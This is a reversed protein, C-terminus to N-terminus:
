SLFELAMEARKKISIIEKPTVIDRQGVYEALEWLSIGLLRATQELSLGHEYIKSAKNIASKRLVEKIYPKLNSISEFTKRAQEMYDAYEEPNNRNLASIAEDFNSNLAKVFKEWNKIKENDRREILKSLAYILVATTISGADQYFCSSHITRNSLEKLKIADLEKIAKKTEELVLAANICEEKQFEM